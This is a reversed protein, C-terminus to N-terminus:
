EASQEVPVSRDQESPLFRQALYIVVAVGFTILGFVQPNYFSGNVPFLQWFLNSLAHYIAMAFVSRGVRFYLCTMIIRSSITGLSWWAIWDASRHAQVLAIVHWVAWVVGLILGAGLVGWCQQMPDTAYGTWGLEEGLATIIFAVFMVIVAFNLPAFGPLPQQRGIFVYALLAIAPNLLLLILFWGLHNIRKVDFSRALLQRVGSWHAELYTAILAAVVPVFASLASIPLGPLLEVPYVVALVWFPISLAFILVFFLILSSKFNPQMPPWHQLIHGLNYSKFLISLWITRM